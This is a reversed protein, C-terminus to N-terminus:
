SIVRGKKIKQFCESVILNLRALCARVHIRSQCKLEGPKDRINNHRGAPRGGVQALDRIRAM